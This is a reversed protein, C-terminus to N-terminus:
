DHVDDPRRSRDLADELRSFLDGQVLGPCRRAPGLRREVGDLTELTIGFTTAHNGLELSGFDPLDDVTRIPDDVSDLLGSDEIQSHPVGTPLEIGGLRLLEGSAVPIM